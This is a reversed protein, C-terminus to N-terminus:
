LKTIQLWLQWVILCLVSSKTVLDRGTFVKIRLKYLIIAWKQLKGNANTIQINVDYQRIPKLPLIGQLSSRLDAYYFIFLFSVCVRRSYFFLLLFIFSILKICIRFLIGLHDTKDVGRKWYTWGGFINLDIRLTRSSHLCASSALVLWPCEKLGSSMYM